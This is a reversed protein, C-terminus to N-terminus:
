GSSSGICYNGFQNIYLLTSSSYQDVFRTSYGGLMLVMKDFRIQYRTPIWQYQENQTELENDLNNTNQPVGEESGSLYFPDKM